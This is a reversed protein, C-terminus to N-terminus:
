SKSPRLWRVAWVQKGSRGDSPAWGCADMFRRVAGLGSGIGRRGAFLAPDIPGHEDSRDQSAREFDVFPPGEDHATIRLGPGRSPEAVAELVVDGRVGYKLVNSTLESAAIAIELAARRVFGVHEALERAAQQVFLIDGDREVHCAIREM